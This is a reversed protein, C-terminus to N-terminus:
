RTLRVRGSLSPFSPFSHVCSSGTTGVCIGCFLNCVGVTLGGWFLSFGTYYNQATPRSASFTGLKSSFVIAIIIGYIAVVECFIVSILNKTRIRPVRVAAGLLSAGTSFIGWAAGVVSLGVCLSAGLLAWMYPSTNLLFLGVNFDEGHGSFLLDLGVVIALLIVFYFVVAPLSYYNYYGM